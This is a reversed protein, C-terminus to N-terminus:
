FAVLVSIWLLATEVFSTYDETALATSYIYMFHGESPSLTIVEQLTEDFERM